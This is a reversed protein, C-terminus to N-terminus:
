AQIMSVKPCNKNLNALINASLFNFNWRYNQAGIHVKRFVGPIPDGPPVVKNKFGANYQNLLNDPINLVQHIFLPIIISMM